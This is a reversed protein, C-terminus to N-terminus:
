AEALGSRIAHRVLEAPSKCAFRKMLRARYSEVTKINLALEAAIEKNRLGRVVLGLVQGERGPLARRVPGAAVAAGASAYPPAPAVPWITPFRTGGALIIRVAAVLEASADTKVVYGHAGADAAGIAYDQSLHATLILIKTGARQRIIRRTLALGSGDPLDIDMLVLEPQLDHVAQWATASDGCLGVVEIGPERQLLVRLGDRMLPHDDVILIRDPIV